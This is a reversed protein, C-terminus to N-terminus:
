VGDQSWKEIEIFANALKRRTAEASEPTWDLFGKGTKAGLEGKDVKEQLLKIVDMSSDLDSLLEPLVALALEWWGAVDIMEFLGAAVWRRAHGTKLVTDIDEPSAIGGQVLSLAERLLAVQLRNAIFGPVEKQVMVPSKGVKKLVQFVIDVTEDSTQETRVIEVLPSLYSPGTYHAVLVRDPPRTVEAFRSRTIASTSSALITREPCFEDLGKFIRR